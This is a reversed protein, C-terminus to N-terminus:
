RADRRTKKFCKRNLLSQETYFMWGYKFANKLRSLRPFAPNKVQPPALKGQWMVSYDSQQPTEAFVPKVATRRAQVLLHVPTFTILEVRSRIVNPDTVEYWSGYPGVRHVVMREVEFGNEPGLARYFLEPSFQYFGHGCLNNLCTHFYVRGGERTMEMCNKLAQPFNFVHELTGGDYVTDFRNKLSDPVPVNLDHIFRAGEFDSNDLTDVEKAGLAEFVPEAYACDPGAARFKAAPLGEAEFLEAVKQPFINLGQRGLMITHDFRAGRRRAALLFHISNIDLGM